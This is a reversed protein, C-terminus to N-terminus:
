FSSLLASSYARIVTLDRSRYLTQRADEAAAYADWSPLFGAKLPLGFFFLRLTRSNGERFPHIVDLKGYFHLARLAFADITLHQVLSRPPWLNRLSLSWRM